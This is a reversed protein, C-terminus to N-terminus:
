RDTRTGGNIDMDAEHITMAGVLKGNEDRLAMVTPLADRKVHQQMHDATIRLQNCIDEITTPAPALIINLTLQKM